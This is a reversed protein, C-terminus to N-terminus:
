PVNRFKYSIHYVSSFFASRFFIREARKILLTSVAVHKSCHVSLEEKEDDGSVLIPSFSFVALRETQVCPQSDAPKAKEM